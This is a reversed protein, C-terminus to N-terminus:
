LVGLGAILRPVGICFTIGSLVLGAVAFGRSRGSVLLGIIGLIIGIAALGLTIWNVWGLLPILAVLTGILAILSVVFSAIAM